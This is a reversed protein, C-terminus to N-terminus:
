LFDGIGSLQLQHDCPIARLYSGPDLWQNQLDPRRGDARNHPSLNGAM